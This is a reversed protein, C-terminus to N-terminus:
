LCCADPKPGRNGTLPLFAFLVPVHFVAEKRRLGRVGMEIVRVMGTEKGMPPPPAFSLVGEERTCVESKV